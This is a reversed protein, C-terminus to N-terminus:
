RSSIHHFTLSRIDPHRYIPILVIRSPPSLSMQSREKPRGPDSRSSPRRGASSGRTSRGCSSASSSKTTSSSRAKITSTQGEKIRYGKKKLQAMQTKDELNYTHTATGHIDAKFEKAIVRRPDDPPSSLAPDAGAADGLLYEKWKRISEDEDQRALCDM